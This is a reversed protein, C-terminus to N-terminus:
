YRGLHSRHRLLSSATAKQEFKSASVVTPVQLQMLTELPLDTLDETQNTGKDVPASRDM